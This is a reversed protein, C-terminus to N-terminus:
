EAVEHSQLQRHLLPNLPHPTVVKRPRRTFFNLQTPNDVFPSLSEYGVRIRSWTEEVPVVDKTSQLYADIAQAAWASHGTSVNDITNHLDVFTTPLGYHKLFRHANRYTGGVGSLEMALNMGLIEPRFTLPLKGLCLWYVPLRFSEDLLRQDQAFDLSGTPPLTIDMKALVDRYIKPHNIRWQGNGLEDWYTEFLRSGVPSSALTIDTYGQLWAGDILTLPALQLTQDIVEELTPMPAHQSENFNRAHADHSALLWERLRGQSWTKPLSRSSKDLSERANTLWFTCYERAFMRTTPALARGQLLYYASRIDSPRIGLNADGTQVVHYGDAVHVERPLQDTAHVTTQGLNTIWSTITAIDRKSFIRFMPGDDSILSNILPSRAPHGPRILKSRALADVLHLPNDRAEAFWQSLPQGELNYTAHYVQAERAREQILIAMALRPDSLSRAINYLAEDLDHLLASFLSIGTMIRTHEHPASRATDILAMMAASLNAGHNFAAGRGLGMHLDQWTVDDGAVARWAPILGTTRWALDFGILEYDFADSRRSLAFLIAPFRFCCDRIFSQDGLEGPSLAVEAVGAAQAMFCFSDFRSRGPAGTGVDDALFTLLQLHVPDEFVGPASMGHLAAGMSAALPASQRIIDHRLAPLKEEGLLEVLNKWRQDLIKISAVLSSLSEVISITNSPLTPLLRGINDADLYIEPRVSYAFVDRWM